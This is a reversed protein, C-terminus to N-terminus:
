SRGPEDYTSAAAEAIQGALALKEVVVYGNVNKIVREVDPYVFWTPDARVDSYDAPSIDVMGVCTTDACECAIVFTDSVSSFAENLEHLKQNLTRFLLQNRAARAQREENAAPEM